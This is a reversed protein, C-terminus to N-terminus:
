YKVIKEPIHGGVIALLKVLAGRNQAVLKTEVHIYIFISDLFAM